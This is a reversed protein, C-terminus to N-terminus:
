DTLVEISTKSKSALELVQKYTLGDLHKSLLEYNVFNGDPNGLITLPNETVDMQISLLAFMFERKKRNPLSEVITNIDNELATASKGNLVLNEDVSACGAILLISLTFFLSKM